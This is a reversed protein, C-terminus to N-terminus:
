FFHKLMETPTQQELIDGDDEKMRRFEDRLRIYMIEVSDFFDVTIFDVIGWQESSAYVVFMKGQVPESYLVVNYSKGDDKRLAFLVNLGMKKELEDVLKEEMMQVRTSFVTEYYDYHPYIVVPQASFIDSLNSVLDTYFDQIAGSVMENDLDNVNVSENMKM